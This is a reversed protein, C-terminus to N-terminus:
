NIITVDSKLVYFVDTIVMREYINMEYSDTLGIPLQLYYHTDTEGRVAFPVYLGYYNYLSSDYVVPSGEQPGYYGITNPDLIAIQYSNRDKFGLAKDLQYYHKAIKEGWFADSAYKYNMGQYKNGFNTGFSTQYKPNFYRTQLFDEVHYIICDEISDFTFANEYPNSDTANIGFLNNKDRAIRSTGWGSEHIAFSLEMAANIFVTDQADIFEQGSGYLVSYSSTNSSIYQDLEEATYNTKSRFSIYQYYNYYPSDANIAQDFTRTQYANSMIIIDDFFYHGDYSFYKEGTVLYNPAIDMPAMSSFSQTQIDNTITHVLEGDVNSYYSYGNRTQIHPILEVESTLVEFYLGAIIGRTFIGNTDLYLGDVNYHGNIYGSTTSDMNGLITVESITKTKFNVAGYKMAVVDNQFLVVMDQNTEEELIQDADDLTEYTAVSTFTKDYNAIALEYECDEIAAEECSVIPEPLCDEHNPNVTCDVPPEECDEHDPTVTCDVPPEECDEHDPTVTCDVPPEECDEHDPNVTCDVSDEICDEHTPNEMCFDSEDPVQNCASLLLIFLLILLRTPKM